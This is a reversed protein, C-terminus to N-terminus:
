RYCFSRPKRFGEYFWHNGYTVLDCFRYYFARGRDPCLGTLGPRPGSLGNKSLRNAALQKFARRPSTLNKGHATDCYFKRVVPGLSLKVKLSPLFDQSVGAELFYFAPNFRIPVPLNNHTWGWSGVVAGELPFNVM